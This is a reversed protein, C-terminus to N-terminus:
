DIAVKVLAQRKRRLQRNAPFYKTREVEDIHSSQRNARFYETREVEDIYFKRFHREFMKGLAALGGKRPLRARNDELYPLRIGDVLISRDPTEKASLVEFDRNTKM